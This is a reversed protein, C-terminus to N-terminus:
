GRWKQSLPFVLEAVSAVANGDTSAPQFKWSKVTELIVQDLGNGLGQVLKEDLVEGQASVNVDVVVNRSASPLLSRDSIHPSPSFVPFAPTTNESGSGTGTAASASQAVQSAPAPVAEPQPLKVPHHLAIKKPPTREVHAHATSATAQWYLVTHTEGQTQVPRVKFTQRGAILLLVFVLVHAAMSSWTGISPLTHRKRM